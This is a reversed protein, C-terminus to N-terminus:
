ASLANTTRRELDFCFRILELTELTKVRIYSSPSPRFTAKQLSQAKAHYFYSLGLHAGLADTAMRESVFCVFYCQQNNDM